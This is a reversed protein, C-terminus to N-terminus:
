SSDVVPLEKMAVSKGHSTVKSDIQKQTPSVQLAVKAKKSKISNCYHVHSPSLSLSLHYVYTPNVSHNFNM